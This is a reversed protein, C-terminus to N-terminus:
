YLNWYQFVTLALIIAAAALIGIADRDKEEQGTNAMYDFGAQDTTHMNRQM